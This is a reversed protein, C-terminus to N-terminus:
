KFIIDFKLTSGINENFLNYVESINTDDSNWNRTHSGGTTESMTINYGNIQISEITNYTLTPNDDISVFFGNVKNFMMMMITGGGALDMSLATGSKRMAGSWTLSNYGLYVSGSGGYEKGIIFSYDGTGITTLKTGISNQSEEEVVSISSPESSSYGITCNRIQNFVLDKTVSSPEPTWNDCSRSDEYYQYVSIFHQEPQTDLMYTVDGVPNINFYNQNTVDGLYENGSQNYLNLSRINDIDWSLTLTDSEMYSVKDVNFNNITVNPTSNQGVMGFPTSDVDDDDGDNDDDPDLNNTIGDNDWDNSIFDPQPITMNFVGVAFSATSITSILISLIIKKM